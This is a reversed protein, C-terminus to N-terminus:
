GLLFATAAGTDSRAYFAPGDAFELVDGHFVRFVPTAHGDDKVIEEYEDGICEIALDHSESLRDSHLLLMIAVEYVGLGFENEVLV